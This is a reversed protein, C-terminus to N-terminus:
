VDDLPLNLTVSGMVNEGYKLYGITGIVTYLTIVVAMGVNLVGLPRQFHKREKMENQLPLVQLKRSKLM